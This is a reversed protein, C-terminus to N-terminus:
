PKRNIYQIEGQGIRFTLILTMCIEVSFIEYVKASLAFILKVMSSFTWYAIKKRNANVYMQGQGIRFTLTLTMCMEITFIECVIVSQVFMAILEYSTAHPRKM